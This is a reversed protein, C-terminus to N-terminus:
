FLLVDCNLAMACREVLDRSAIEEDRSGYGFRITRRLDRPREHVPEPQRRSGFYHM